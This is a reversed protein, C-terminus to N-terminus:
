IKIGKIVEEENLHTNEEEQVSDILADIYKFRKLELYYAELIDKITVKEFGFVNRDSFTVM